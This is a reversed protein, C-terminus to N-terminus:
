PAVRVRFFGAAGGPALEYLSQGATGPLDEWVASAPSTARQLTVGSGGIWSLRLRGDSMLIASLRSPAVDSVRPDSGALFEAANPRGDGDADAMGDRSDRADFGVRIEFGDPMGDSDTDLRASGPPQSDLWVSALGVQGAFEPAPALALVAGTDADLIDARAPDFDGLVRLLRAPSGPTARSWLEVRFPASAEPAAAPSRRRDGRRGTNGLAKLKAAIQGVAVGAGPDLIVRDGAVRVNDWLFDGEPNPNVHQGFRVFIGGDAVGPPLRVSPQSGSCYSLSTCQNLILPSGPIFGPDQRTIPCPDESHFEYRTNIGDLIVRELITDRLGDNDDDLDNCDPQGDGDTDRGEWSLVDNRGGACATVAIVFEVGAVQDKQDPRWDEPEGARAIGGDERYYANRCGDGDRDSDCVDGVGDHDQDAQNPNAARPCNDCVDGRGDRDFDEQRPNARRPCNDDRDLVGDGDTDPPPIYADCAPAYPGVGVSAWANRVDCVDDPTFGHFRHLAFFEALFVEMERAQEFRANSPLGVLAAYFLQRAKAEGLGAIRVAPEGNTSAPLFAGAMLRYSALNAIGSNIHVGGRDNAASPEAESPLVTRDRYHAPQPTRVGRNGPNSLDRDPGLGNLSKEFLTWNTAGLERDMLVAMVDAYHENLAGSEREYELGSSAYIVGHTFEHALTEADELGPSFEITGCSELFRANPPAVDSNIFIEIQAGSGDYSDRGFHRRFFGYVDRAGRFLVEAQPNGRYAPDIGDEDAVFDDNSLLFCDASGNSENEADQMDLDLDELLGETAGLARRHAVEGTHADVFFEDESGRYAVRWVLRPQTPEGEALVAPDYICLASPRLLQVSPMPARVARVIAEAREAPITPVVDAVRVALEESPLLHGQLNLAEGDALHVVVEAGFIPIGQHAQALTVRSLVGGEVQRVFLERDPDDVRLLSRFERAFGRAQELPTDGVVPIRGRLHAPFGERMRVGVPEVSAQRFRRLARVQPDATEPDAVYTIGDLLTALVFGAANELMLSRLGPLEGPPLPPVTGTLSTGDASARVDRLLNADPQGPPAPFAVRVRHEPALYGGRVSIRTGGAVSVFGPEVGSLGPLGSVGLVAARTAVIEGCRRLIVDYTGDPLEPIEFRLLDPAVWRVEPVRTTGFWVEDGRLFGSGKLGTESPGPSRWGSTDLGAISPAEVPAVVTVPFRCEARNGATDVAVGVVETTGVPFATGSPPTCVVVVRPDCNDTVPVVFHVPTGCPADASVTIPGPCAIVPPQTDSGLCDELCFRRGALVRLTIEDLETRSETGDDNLLSLSPRLRYTGEPLLMTLIGSDAAEAASGPLGYAAEITVAYDRSTGEFDLGVFEGHAQAVAPSHFRRGPTRFRLCVEGFGVALDNTLLTVGDALFAPAARETLTLVQSVFPTDAAAALSIALALQDRKWLTNGHPFRSDLGAVLLEYEGRFMGAADDYAGDFNGAVWGGAATLTAGPAWDDQGRGIVYSGVMGYEGVAVPVGDADVGYDDPRVIGRLVSRSTATEPPGAFRIAGRIRSPRFRFRDALDVSEGAGVAVGPNRGEGLAPSVFWEFARGAGLHLEAQVRWAQPPVGTESPLLRPLEFRGTGAPLFGLRRNGEPGDALIAPRGVLGGVTSPGTVRVTADEFGLVGTVRGLEGPDRLVVPVTLVTDCPVNTVLTFTQHIRDRYPDTGRRFEFSGSFDTDSPVLLLAETLGAALEFVQLRLEGEASINGAGGEIAISSGRADVFQLRM